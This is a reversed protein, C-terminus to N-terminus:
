RPGQAANFMSTAAGATAAGGGTTIRPPATGYLYRMIEILADEAEPGQKAAYGLMQNQTQVTGAKKGEVALRRLAGQTAGSFLRGMMGQGAVTTVDASNALLRSSGVGKAYDDSMKMRAADVAKETGSFAKYRIAADYLKDVAASGFITDLKQTFAADLTPGIQRTFKVAGGSKDLFKIQIEDRAARAVAQKEMDSMKAYLKAFDDASHKGQFVEVALKNANDVAFEDAYIKTAAAFKPDATLQNNLANKIAIADARIEKPIAKDPAANTIRGDFAKKLELAEDVTLDAKGPNGPDIMKGAKNYKPARYGTFNNLEALFDARASKAALSGGFGGRIEDRLDAVNVTFGKTRMDALATTYDTRAGEIVAQRDEARAVKGYSPGIAADLDDMLIAGTDRAVVTNAILPASAKATRPNIAGASIASLIPNLDAITANPGLARLQATADLIDVPNTAERGLGANLPGGFLTESAERKAADVAAQGTLPFLMGGAMGLGGGLFASLAPDGEGTMATQGAGQGAGAVGQSVGSGLATTAFNPALKGLAYQAAKGLGLGTAVSSAVEAGTATYPAYAKRQQSVAQEEALNQGFSQGGGTVFGLATDLASQVFPRIGMTAGEMTAGATLPDTAIPNAGGPLMVNLMAQSALDFGSLPRKAAEEQKRKNEAARFRNMKLGEEPVEQTTELLKAKRKAAAAAAALAISMDLSTDAM